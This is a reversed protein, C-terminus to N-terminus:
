ARNVGMNALAGCSVSFYRSAGWPSGGLRFTGSACATSEFIMIRSIEWSIKRIIVEAM